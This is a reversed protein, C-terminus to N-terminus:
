SRFNCCRRVQFTLIRCAGLREDVSHAYIQEICSCHLQYRLYRHHKGVTVTIPGTTVNRPLQVVPTTTTASIVSGATGNVLVINVALVTNFGQGRITVTNGAPAQLPAISFLTLAGPQVLSRNIQVINGVADPVYDIATGTSDVVKVLQNLDDYLYQFSIPGQAALFSPVLVAALSSVFARRCRIALTNLPQYLRRAPVLDLASHMQMLFRLWGLM